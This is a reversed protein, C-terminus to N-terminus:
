MHANLVLSQAESAKLFGNKSYLRGRFAPNIEQIVGRILNGATQVYASIGLTLGKLRLSHIKLERHLFSIKERWEAPLRPLVQYFSSSEDAVALQVKKWAEFRREELCHLGETKFELSALSQELKLWSKEELAKKARMQTEEFDALGQIQLEMLTEVDKLLRNLEDM